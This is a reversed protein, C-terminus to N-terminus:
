DERDLEKEFDEWPTASTGSGKYKEMREKLINFHWEPSEEKLAVDKRSIGLAETIELLLQVNEDPIDLIVKPMGPRKSSIVVIVKKKLVACNTLKNIKVM